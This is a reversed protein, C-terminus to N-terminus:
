SIRSAKRLATARLTGRVAWPAGFMRHTCQSLRVSPILMLPGVDLAFGDQVIHQRSIEQEFRSLAFVCALM